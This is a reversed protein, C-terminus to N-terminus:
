SLVPKKHRRGKLKTFKEVAKINLADCGIGWISDSPYM